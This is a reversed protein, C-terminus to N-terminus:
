WSWMAARQCLDDAEARMVCTRDEKREWIGDSREKGKRGGIVRNDKLLDMKERSLKFEM